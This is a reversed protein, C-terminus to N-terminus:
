QGHRGRKIGDIAVAPRASLTMGDRHVSQRVETTFVAVCGSRTHELREFRPPTARSRAPRRGGGGPKPKPGAGGGVGELRGASVAHLADSLLDPRAKERAQGM